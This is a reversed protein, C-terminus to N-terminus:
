EPFYKKFIRKSVGNYQLILISQNIKTLLEYARSSTKSIFLHFTSPDIDLIRESVVGTPIIPTGITTFGYIPEISNPFLDCRDMKIKLLVGQYTTAGIDLKTEDIKFSEYSNGLVGCLRFKNLDALKKINLGNPYRKKLYFVGKHTEYIPTTIYYKKARESSFTGNAFVEFNYFEGLKKGKGFQYVADTCRSWPVLEISYTMDILKFIEDLLDITAGMVKKYNKKGDVREFYVYPPWESADDCIKVPQALSISSIFFIFLFSIYKM